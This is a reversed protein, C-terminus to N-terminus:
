GAALQLEPRIGRSALMPPRPAVTDAMADPVLQPLLPAIVLGRQWVVQTQVPARVAGALVVDDTTAYAVWGPCAPPGHAAELETRVHALCLEFATREGDPLRSAEAVVRAIARDLDARWTDHPDRGKSSTDVFVSLARRGRLARETGLVETLTLM